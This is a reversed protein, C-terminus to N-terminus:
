APVDSGPVVTGFGSDKPLGKNAGYESFGTGVTTQSGDGGRGVYKGRKRLMRKATNAVRSYTRRRYRPRAKGKYTRRKKGWERARIYAAWLGKDNPTCSIKNGYVACVPFSKTGRKGLFCKSGCKRLMRTRQRGKPSIKGWGAWPVEGRIEAGRGRGRGRRHRRRTHWYRAM